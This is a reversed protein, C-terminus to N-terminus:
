STSFKATYKDRGRTCKETLNLFDPLIEKSNSPWKETVTDVNVFPQYLTETREGLTIRFSYGYVDQPVFWFSGSWLDHRPKPRYDRAGRQPPIPEIGSRYM